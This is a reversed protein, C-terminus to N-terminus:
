LIIARDFDSAPFSPLRADLAVCSLVVCSLFSAYAALGDTQGFQVVAISYTFRCFLYQELDHAAVTLLVLTGFLAVILVVTVQAKQM